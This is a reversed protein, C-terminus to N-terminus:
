ELVQRPMRLGLRLRVRHKVQLPPLSKRGGDPPGMSKVSQLACSRSVRFYERLLVRDSGSGRSWKFRSTEVIFGTSTAGAAGATCSKDRNLRNQCAWKVTLSTITPSSPADIQDQATM